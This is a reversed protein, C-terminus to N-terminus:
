PLPLDKIPAAASAVATSRSALYVPYLQDRNSFISKTAMMTKDHSSPSPLSSSPADLGGCQAHRLTKTAPCFIIENNNGGYLSTGCDGCRIKNNDDDNHSEDSSMPLYYSKDVVTQCAACQLAFSRHHHQQQQRRSEPLRMMMMKLKKNYLGSVMQAKNWAHYCPTHFVHGCPIAFTLRQQQQQPTPPPVEGAARGTSETVAYKDDDDADDDDSAAGHGILLPELCIACDRVKFM